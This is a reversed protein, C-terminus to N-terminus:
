PTPSTGDGGAVLLVEFDRSAEAVCHRFEPASACDLGLVPAGLRRAVADLRGRSRGGRLRGAAPNAVVAV